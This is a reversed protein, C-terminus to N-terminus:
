LEKPREDCLPCLTDDVLEISKIESIHILESFGRSIITISPITIPTDRSSLIASCTFTIGNKTNVIINTM